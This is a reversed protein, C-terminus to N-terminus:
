PIVRFPVNSTLTGSPTAVSVYGTTAGAPVTAEIFTDSVVTFSTAIGNLSVSTTGTFGQGLIGGTQGVKGFSRVFTVFPALGMDLSFVTGCGGPCGIGGQLTTGYFIGNTAQVLGGAPSAGDTFGFVHLTTLTGSRTLKFVTGCGGSPCNNSGNGGEYTTGYLSGDTGEVLGASPYSGDACNTVSCFNYLATVQGDTAFEFVTGGGGGLGGGSTTGFLNGDTGQILGGLPASYQPFDYLTTLAGGPTIKFITGGDYTGGSATTGYFNGDSARVLGAWPNEGDSGDFVFLTTLLGGSTIKFVADSYATGYLEGDEGEVLPAVSDGVCDTRACFSDLSTLAGRPTVKYVTGNAYNGGRATTGYFNGDNSLVLGAIPQYGDAFDFSHLTKLKGASTMEFITGDEYYGGNATTGYLNGGQGQALNMYGPNSGDRGDFNAVTTFTQAQAAMMTEAWLMLVAGALKWANLKTM